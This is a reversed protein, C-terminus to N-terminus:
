RLPAEDGWIRPDTEALLGVLSHCGGTMQLARSLTPLPLPEPSSMTRSGHCQSVSQCTVDLSVFDEIGAFPPAFSAPEEPLELVRAMAATEDRCSSAGVVCRVCPPDKAMPIDYEFRWDRGEWALLGNKEETVGPADTLLGGFTNDAFSDSPVEDM